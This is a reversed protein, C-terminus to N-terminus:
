EEIRICVTSWRYQKDLAGAHHRKQNFWICGQELSAGQARRITTAYGYCCPLFLQGDEEMPHVLVMNGTDDLQVTFVRNGCLSECVTGTAGNVFGRQKDLNRTLRVKIGPRALIRLPSKSEPDCLYGGSLDEEGIGAVALAARCVEAAGANTSTLWTFRRGSSQELELGWRVATQLSVSHWHRDAFYEQM